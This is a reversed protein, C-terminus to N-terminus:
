ACNRFKAAVIQVVVADDSGFFRRLLRLEQSRIGVGMEVADAIARAAAGEIPVAADLSDAETSGAGIEATM